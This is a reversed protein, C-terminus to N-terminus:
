LLHSSEEVKHALLGNCSSTKLFMRMATIFM